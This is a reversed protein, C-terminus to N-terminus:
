SILLEAIKGRGEPKSNVARSALVKKVVFGKGKYLSEATSSNSLIVHVDREKLKLALDRLRIQDEPTFGKATYSTFYSTSSLPVYPPDFYVLDGSRARDLVKSFDEHEVEANALARSCAVLNDEDFIQANKNDGFPVNFRNKSNVRYLGNFGLKNLFIFWAAVAADSEADIDQDRMKMFVSRDKKYGKLLSVVEPLHSKIGKYCRVLRENSDSLFAKIPSLAFFVAGGGLFPEHYAGYTRPVKRLIATLLQRKGGAWKIFPRPQDPVLVQATEARKPSRVNGRSTKKTKRLASVTTRKPTNKRSDAALARSAKRQQRRRASPLVPFFLGLVRRPNGNRDGALIDWWNRRTKKGERAWRRVASDIQIVVEERGNARLWARVDEREKV